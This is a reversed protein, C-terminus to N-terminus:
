SRHLKEKIRLRLFILRCFDCDCSDSFLDSALVSLGLTRLYLINKCTSKHMHWWSGVFWCKKLTM